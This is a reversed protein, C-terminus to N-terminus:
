AAAEEAATDNPSWWFSVCSTSSEPTPTPLPPYPLTPPKSTIVHIAHEAEDNTPEETAENTNSPEAETSSALMKLALRLETDPISWARATTIIPDKDAPNIRDIAKGISSGLLPFLPTSYFGFALNATTMIGSVWEASPWKVVVIDAQLLLAVFVQIFIMLQAVSALTDRADDQYPRYKSYLFLSALAIFSAAVIQQIGEGFFVLLGTLALRRACEVSEWFFFCPEYARVLFDLLRVQPNAERHLVVLEKEVVAASAELNTALAAQNPLYAEWEKPVFGVTMKSIFSSSRRASPNRGALAMVEAEIAKHTDKARSRVDAADQHLKTVVEALSKMEKTIETKSYETESLKGNTKVDAIVFWPAPNLFHRNRYVLVLYMCPIGVPYVMVMFSAFYRWGHLYASAMCSLSYDYKLYGKGQDFNYDGISLM